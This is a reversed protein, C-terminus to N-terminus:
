RLDAQDATRIAAHEGKLPPHMALTAPKDIINGISDNGRLRSREASNAICAVGGSVILLSIKSLLADFLRQCPAQAAAACPYLIRIM